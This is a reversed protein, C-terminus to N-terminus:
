REHFVEQRRLNDGSAGRFSVERRFGPTATLGAIFVLEVAEELFVFWAQSDARPTFVLLRAPPKM